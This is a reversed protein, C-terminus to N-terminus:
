RSSTLLSKLIRWITDIPLAQSWVQVGDVDGVMYLDCTGHYDGIFGGTGAPYAIATSAATTTGHGVEVGDIYLRATTGDFTGAANHWKGDWVSQPAEPTIWFRSDTGIIFDMGGGSGTYLGYSPRDCAFAGKSVVYRYQGPSSDGRFWASVTVKAPQLSPSDPIQVFDDGGFRLASGAFVGPIWTPDNADVGATSGLTGNNGHGSWDRITQGSGENMPWWGVLPFDFGSAGATAPVTVFAAAVTTVAALARIRATM